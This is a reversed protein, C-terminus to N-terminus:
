GPEKQELGGCCPNIQEEEENFRKRGNAGQVRSGDEPCKVLMEESGSSGLGEEGVQDIM